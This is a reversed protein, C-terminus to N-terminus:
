IQPDPQVSAEGEGGHTPTPHLETPIEGPNGSQKPDQISEDIEVMQKTAESGLEDYENGGGEIIDLIKGVDERKAEATETRTVFFPQATRHKENFHKLLDAEVRDIPEERKIKDLIKSVARVEAENGNEGPISRYADVKASFWDGLAYKERLLTYHSEIAAKQSARWLSNSLELHPRMEELWIAYQEETYAPRGQGKPEETLLTPDKKKSM